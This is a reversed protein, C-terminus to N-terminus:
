CSLVLVEFILLLLLSGEGCAYIGGGLSSPLYKGSYQVQLCEHIYGLTLSKGECVNFM